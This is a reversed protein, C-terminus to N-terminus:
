SELDVDKNTKILFNEVVDDNLLHLSVKRVKM